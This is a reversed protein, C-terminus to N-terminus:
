DRPLFPKVRIGLDNIQDFLMELSSKMERSVVQPPLIRAERAIATVHEAVDRALNMIKENTKDNEQFRRVADRLRTFWYDDGGAEKELTETKNQSAQLEAYEGRTQHERIMAEEEKVRAGLKAYQDQSQNIESWYRVDRNEGEQHLLKWDM